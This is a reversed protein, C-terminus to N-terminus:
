KILLFGLLGILAVVISGSSTIITTKLSRNSNYIEDKISKVDEELAGLRSDLQQYREQCISVHLELDNEENKYLKTM